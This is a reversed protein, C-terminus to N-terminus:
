RLSLLEIDYIIVSRPPIKNYDGMLGHALYSPIIFRAKDGVRMLQVGEHIGTEVYDEGIKFEKYGDTRSSYCVTGDLLSIEYSVRAIMGSKAKEGDGKEYIEYRLGTGTTTMQWKRQLVYADIEDSEKKQLYNNVDELKKRAQKAEKKSLRPKEREEGCCILLGSLALICILTRM